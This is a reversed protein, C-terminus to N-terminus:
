CINLCAKLIIEVIKSVPKSDTNISIDAAAEYLPQREQLLKQIFAINKEALLPSRTDDNRLRSYLTDLSAKLWILKGTKNLAMINEQKLVAGGGCAIIAQRNEALCKIVTKEQGRFYAEGKKWFIEQVKQGTEAEIIADTDYFDYGSVESLQRGVISKGIGMFGILVLNYPYLQKSQIRRSSRLIVRYLDQVECCFEEEKVNGVLQAIIAKERESRYVLQGTSKKYAAIQGAIKFRRCLAEVIAADCVDIERRLEELM